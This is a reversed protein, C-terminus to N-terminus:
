AAVEVGMLKQIYSKLFEITSNWIEPHVERIRRGLREDLWASYRQRRQPTGDIFVMLLGTQVALQQRAAAWALENEPHLCWALPDPLIYLLWDGCAEAHEVDSSDIWIERLVKYVCLRIGALWPDEAVLFAENIRAISLSERIARLEPTERISKDVFPAAWLYQKLEDPELPVAIYGAARLKHRARWFTENDILQDGKLTEILNLTSTAVVSRGLSDTWTPLKNLFRDDTVVASIQSLDCMLDFAPVMEFAREDGQGSNAEAEADDVTRRVSVRIKLAEIRKNLSLRIRDIATLLQDVHRGHRLAHLTRSNLEDHIFVNDVSRTLPDLIRVHDLYTVALDDLYLNGKPSVSPAGSWGADVHELYAQARTKVDSDIKGNLFLFSLVSRTDTMISAHAGMHVTEELFSGLKPVPASRVVLGGDRRATQLLSALDSGIDRALTPDEDSGKSAVKLRGQAILTQIREAKAIESPQQIRLSQREMFLASLTSPAIIPTDLLDLVTELMGLYDLTIISTLDLAVSTLSPLPRVPQAGFFAFIPYRIRKDDADTNRLAQGLTLDLLQRRLMKGVVFLPADAQRLLRGANEVRENWSPVDAALQQLSVSRVPGDKTSLRIAREFWEHAQSGQYEEGRETALVYAALNVEPDDPAARLAADRFHDVYGSGFEFALRALRILDRPPLSDAQPVERAVIAQLNGWDGTEIATNVALERDGSFDRRALLSRVITRAEMIRGLQYLSWAKLAAYEDNLGYLEPLEDAFALLESFHGARFLSKIALDFEDQANTARALMPAYVALQKEDHRAALGIVLPRLDSLSGSDAYRQRLNEVEDGKEVHDVLEALDRAQDDSLHGANHHLAIHRRADDFRNTRALVQIEIGALAARVLNDQAFLDDHHKDFFDGLRSPDGSNFVILFAAFREDPTWGGLERQATLHRQLADVNFPIGYALALRVRQLTKAPDIIEAALQIRASAATEGDELRLWLDFESLFDEIYGVDLEKTLALVTTIDHDAANLIEQRKAGSAFQIIKPNLPLGQFIAPKQDEPVISALLLQARLMRLVPCDDFYYEPVISVHNVADTFQGNEIENIIFYFTGPANLDTPVLNETKAWGLASDRGRQRILTTLLASRTDGDTRGKLERLTAEPDGEAEKLLADAIFFDHTPDIEAAHFRFKKALEVTEPAANARAARDCIESRILKSGLVLDGEIARLALSALEAPTKTRAFGRRRLAKSLEEKLERDAFTPPLRTPPVQEASEISRVLVAVQSRSAQKRQGALLADLKKDHSAVSPSFGPDFAKKAAESQDIKEQLTDWGWVQIQIKRGAAEQDQMLQQALQDLRTDDKSTTVIFYESLRPKYRLAAKVETRVEVQTLKSRGTKLKCQIGVVKKPDGNRHGVLDVGHQGQGRTGLRKVNPDVLIDRFLVVCNKEFETENAPKRIQTPSYGAM